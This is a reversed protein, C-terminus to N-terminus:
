SSPTPGQTVQTGKEGPLSPHSPGALRQRRLATHVPGQPTLDSKFLVIEEVDCSADLSERELRRLLSRLGDLSKSSRMRGLTLHTRFERGGEVQFGREGLARGLSGALAACELAGESAGIWVVRPRELSDFAGVGALKLRFPPHGSASTGLAEEAAGQRDPPAEGLFALTIHLQDERVWKYDAGSGRLEGLIRRAAEAATGEVPAAVFLRM